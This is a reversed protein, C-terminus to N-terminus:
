VATSTQVWTIQVWTTGNHRYLQGDTTLFVISPGTYGSPSPLSSVEPILHIAGAAIKSVTITSTNKTAM